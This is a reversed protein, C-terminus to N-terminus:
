LTTLRYGMGGEMARSDRQWRKVKVSLTLASLGANGRGSLWAREGNGEACTVAITKHVGADSRGTWVSSVLTILEDVSTRKNCNYDYSVYTTM